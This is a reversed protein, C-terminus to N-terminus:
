LIGLEEEFYTRLKKPIVDQIEELNTIDITQLDPINILSAPLNNLEVSNLILTNLASLEGINKSVTTYAGEMELYELSDGLGEWAGPFYSLSYMVLKRLSEILDIDDFGRVGCTDITLEELAPFTETIIAGFSNEEFEIGPAEKIILEKLETLFKPNDEVNIELKVINKRNILVEENELPTNRNDYGNIQM